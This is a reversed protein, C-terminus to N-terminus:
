PGLLESMRARARTPLASPLPAADDVEGVDVIMVMGMAYHPSCKIGYRGEIGFSVSVEEDIKGIFREAGDPLMESISAANHGHQAPQFRVTDGPAIQLHAPEYVMAGTDGCTLMKVDHTEAYGISPPFIILATLLRM